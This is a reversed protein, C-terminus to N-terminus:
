VMWTIWCFRFYANVPRALYSICKQIPFIFWGSNRIYGIVKPALVKSFKASFLISADELSVKPNDTIFESIETKQAENLQSRIIELIEAEEREREEQEKREREKEEM